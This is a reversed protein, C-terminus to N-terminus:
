HGSNDAPAMVSVARDFAELWPDYSQSGPCVQEYVEILRRRRAGQGFHSRTREYAAQAMRAAESRHGLMFRMAEFLSDEDGPLYLLGEQEDRIVEAVAPVAAAVVPCRGAMPELIPQPLDGLEQFRPTAAATVVTLDASAILGPITESRPEGRVTIQSALEFAEVIRRMRQRRERVADGVLMIDLPRDRALRRLAGLLTSLDRDAAFNGLFIIRAKEGPATPLWDFANLDVGSPVVVVRSQIEPDVISRKAANTPVLILDAADVCRRHAEYWAAETEAGEAEDPFTGIEYIFRYGLERRRRAVDQGEFAGRVHVVDYVDAELQRIVARGFHARQESASGQSPVPVRFLRAEGYTEFHGLTETKVSLIDVDGHVAGALGLVAVADPSSGPAPACATALLKIRM